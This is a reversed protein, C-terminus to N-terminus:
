CRNKELILELETEQKNIIESSSHEKLIQKCEKAKFCKDKKIARKKRKLIKYKVCEVKGTQENESKCSFLGCSRSVRMMGGLIKFETASYGKEECLSAANDRLMRSTSLATNNVAGPITNIRFEGDNIGDTTSASIKFEKTMKKRYTQSVNLHCYALKEEEKQLLSILKITNTFSDDYIGSIRHLEHLVLVSLDYNERIYKEWRIIDLTLKGPTGIADVLSGRNDVLPNWSFKIDKTELDALGEEFEKTNIGEDALTKLIRTSEGFFYKKLRNERIESGFTLGSYLTLFLLMFKRM